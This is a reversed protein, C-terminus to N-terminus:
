KYDRGICFHYGPYFPFDMANEEIDDQYTKYIALHPSLPLEGKKVREYNALLKFAAKKDCVQFIDALKKYNIGIDISDKFPLLERDHFYRNMVPFNIRDAKIEKLDIPRLYFLDLRAVVFLDYENEFAISIAKRTSLWRSLVSHVRGLMISSKIKTQCILAQSISSLLTHIRWWGGMMQALQYFSFEFKNFNSILVKPRYVKRLEELYSNEWTHIYVDFECDRNVELLNKKFSEFNRSINRFKGRGYKGECEPLGYLCIAVKRNM